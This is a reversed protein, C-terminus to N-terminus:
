AEEGCADGRGVAGPPRADGQRREGPRDTPVMLAIRCAEDEKRRLAIPPRGLANDPEDFVVRLQELAPV